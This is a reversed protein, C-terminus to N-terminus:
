DMSQDSPEIHVTVDLVLLNSELLVNKVQHAILHGQRVSL